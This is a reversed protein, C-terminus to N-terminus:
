PSNEFKKYNELFLCIVQMNDASPGHSGEDSKRQSSQFHGQSTQRSEDQQKKLSHNKRLNEQTVLLVTSSVM